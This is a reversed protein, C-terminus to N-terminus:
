DINELIKKKIEELEGEQYEEKLDCYLKGEKKRPVLHFHVHPVEQGAIKKNNQLINLGGGFTKELVLALKFVVKQLELFEEEPMEFITEYEKKPIVLIHGKEVPSIDFFALHKEDEYVIEAPIEKDIIKKFINM